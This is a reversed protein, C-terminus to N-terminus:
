TKINYNLPLFDYIYDSRDVQWREDVQDVTIMVDSTEIIERNFIWLERPLMIGKTLFRFGRNTLTWYGSKKTREIIDWYSLKQMDLIKKYDDNWVERPNFTKCKKEHLFILIDWAQKILRDDLTKCYARCIRGCVPCKDKGAKLKVPDLYQSFLGQQIM